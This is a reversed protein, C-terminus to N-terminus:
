VINIIDAVSQLCYTARVDTAADGIGASDFGGNVAAEIGALADEVVLCEKVPICLYEAAKEFVEPSPKSAVINNGDSIADFEQLLGIRELIYRANKSSSGIALSIKKKKLYNLTDVVGFMVDSQNMNGLLECYYANKEEALIKKETETFKGNYNELIIELSDMRSVGRLRNNINEDFYVGIEDAIKKWAMYHYRDTCCIVGDLDFIVAKYIKKNM